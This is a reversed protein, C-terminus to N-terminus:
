VTVHLIFKGLQFVMCNLYHLLEKLCGYTQKVVFVVVFFFVSFSNIKWQFVTALLM